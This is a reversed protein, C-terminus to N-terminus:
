REEEFAPEYEHEFNMDGRAFASLRERQVRFHSATPSFGRRDFAVIMEDILELAAEVSVEARARRQFHTRGRERADRANDLNTGVLLHDPRVCLRTDCRHRILKGNPIPGVCAEYSVRHAHKCRYTGYGTEKMVAGTWIWCGDEGDQREVNAWFDRKTRSWQGEYRSM